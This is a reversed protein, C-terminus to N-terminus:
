FAIRLALTRWKLPSVAPFFGGRAGRLRGHTRRHRFDDRDERTAPEPQEQPGKDDNAKADNFVPGPDPMLPRSLRLLRHCPPHGAERDRTWPIAAAHGTPGGAKCFSGEGLKQERLRDISRRV